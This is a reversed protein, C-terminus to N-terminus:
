FLWKEIEKRWQKKNKGSDLAALLARSMWLLKDPSQALREVEVWRNWEQAVLWDDKDILSNPLRYHFTPRPKILNEEEIRGAASADLYAFVPFMDLPRNRTPNYNIYDAIMQQIDPDYRPNLLMETYADPFENIFPTLKRTFNVDSEEYLWDYLVLFARLHALLCSVDLSPVEANIHLGFAYFISAETGQAKCRKLELRLQEIVKLQDIPIPPTIIEFPVFISLIGILFNEITEELPTQSIDIGLDLLYKKYGEQKLTYSDIEISFDGYVTDVVQHFVRTKKRHKGGFLKRIIRASQELKIGSYEIEFGVSRLQNKKNKLVPPLQFNM